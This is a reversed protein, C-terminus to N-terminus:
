PSVIAQRDRSTAKKFVVPAGPHFLSPMPTEFLRTSELPKLGVVMDLGAGLAARLRSCVVGAPAPGHLIQVVVLVFRLRFSGLSV